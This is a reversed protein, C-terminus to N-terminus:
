PSRKPSKQFLFSAAALLGAAVLGGGLFDVGPVYRREFRDVELETVPDKEKHPVSHKTWGTNRGKYYWFATVTVAILLAIALLRTRM